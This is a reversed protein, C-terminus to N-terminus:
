LVSIHGSPQIQVQKTANSNNTITVTVVTGLPITTMGNPTFIIPGSTALTIGKADPDLNRTTVAEGPDAVVPVDNDDNDHTTYTAGSVTFVYRNNQAAAATRARQLATYVNLTAGRLRYMEVTRAISPAVMRAMIGVVALAVLIEIASFGAQKKVFSRPRASFARLM